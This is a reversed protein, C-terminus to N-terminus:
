YTLCLLVKRNTVLTLVEKSLSVDLVYSIYKNLWFM